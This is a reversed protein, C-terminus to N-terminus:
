GRVNASARSKKADTALTSHQKDGTYCVQYVPNKVAIKETSKHSKCAPPSKGKYAKCVYDIFNGFDEKLPQSNVTVWPVYDHPPKLHETEEYYGNAIKEALNSGCCDKVQKLSRSHPFCSTWDGSEDLKEICNIYGFHKKPDPYTHIICGEVFNLECEKPGHQCQIEGHDDIIANGWPVLRLNVINIIGNDFVSSQMSTVFAKCSPCLSEYYLTLNVKKSSHIESNIPYFCHSPSAFSLLLIFLSTLSLLPPSAM